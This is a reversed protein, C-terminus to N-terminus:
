LEIGLSARVSFRTLNAAQMSDTTRVVEAGTVASIAARLDFM